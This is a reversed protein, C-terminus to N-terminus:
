ITLVVLFMVHCLMVYRLMVYCLMVYCLMVNCEAAGEAVTARSVKVSHPTIPRRAGYM